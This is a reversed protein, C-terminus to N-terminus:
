HRGCMGGCMVQQRGSAWASSMGLMFGRASLVYDAGLAFARSVDYATVIKGSAGVRNDALVIQGWREYLKQATIRALVDTAGGPAFPM